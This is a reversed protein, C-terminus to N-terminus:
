QAVKELFFIVRASFSFKVPLNLGLCGKEECKHAATEGDRIRYRLHLKFFVFQFLSIFNKFLLFDGPRKYSFFTIKSCAYFIICHLQVDHRFSQTLVNFRKISMNCIKHRARTRAFVARSSVSVNTPISCRVQNYGRDAVLRENRNM